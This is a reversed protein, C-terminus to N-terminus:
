TGLISTALIRYETNHRCANAVRGAVSMDVLVCVYGSCGFAHRWLVSYLISAVEISPVYRERLITWFSRFMYSYRRIKFLTIHKLTNITFLYKLFCIVTCNTPWYGIMLSNCPIFFFFFAFTIYSYWRSTCLHQM